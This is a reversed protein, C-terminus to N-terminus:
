LNTIYVHITIIRLLSLLIFNEASQQEISSFWFTGVRKEAAGCGIEASLTKLSCRHRNNYKESTKMEVDQNHAEHM